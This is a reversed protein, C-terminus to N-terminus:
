NKKGLLKNKIKKFHSEGLIKIALKRFFKFFVKKDSFMIYSYSIKQLLSMKPYYTDRIMKITKDYKDSTAVSLGGTGIRYAEGIEGTYVFKANLCLRCQFDFDEFLNYPFSYGNVLNFLKKPIMYGRLQQGQPISLSLIKSIAFYSDYPNKQYQTYPLINGDVDMKIWQSFAVTNESVISVENEIKKPNIYIDDSDLFLLYDADTHEAGFNRAFSVGHNEEFQFLHINDNKDMIRKIISVSNDKSCDDVIIIEINNYTQNLVSNICDEIYREKNYNPIIVAVKSNNM